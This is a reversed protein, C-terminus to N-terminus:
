HLLINCRDRQRTHEPPVLGTVSPDCAVIVAAQDQEGRRGAWRGGARLARPGALWSDDGALRSYRRRQKKALCEHRDARAGLPHVAPGRLSGFPPYLLNLRGPASAAVELGLSRARSIGLRQVAPQRDIRRGRHPQLTHRCRWASFDIRRPRGIPRVPLYLLNLQGPAWGTVEVDCSRLM